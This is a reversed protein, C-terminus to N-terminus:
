GALSAGINKSRIYEVLKNATERTPEPVGAMPYELGLARYKPEGLHHMRLVEVKLARGHAALEALEVAIAAMENETDNMGPVVPVRIWLAPQRKVAQRLNELVRRSGVGTWEKHLADTACKLDCILLDVEEILRPFSETGANTELATHIGARRLRRLADLVEDAQLTPEGGGFTVGGESGFLPRYRRARAELEAPSVEEGAWEYAPHAWTGTCPRDECAACRARDLKWGGNGPAVAGYPCAKEPTGARDPYFLIEDGPSIGEPNGCWRCRFNCGKLYVMWRRGPGDFDESWGKRFIRM